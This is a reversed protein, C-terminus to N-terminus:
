IAVIKSHCIQLIDFFKLHTDSCFIKVTSSKRRFTKLLSSKGNKVKM